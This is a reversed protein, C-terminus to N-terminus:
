EYPILIWVQGSTDGADGMFPANKGNSYTDLSRETGLFGNTLRYSKSTDITQAQAQTLGLLPTLALLLAGQIPRKRTM